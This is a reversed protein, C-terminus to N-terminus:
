GAVGQLELERKVQRTLEVVESRQATRQLAQLMRLCERIEGIVDWVHASHIPSHPATRLQLGLEDAMTQANFLVAAVSRALTDAHDVEALILDLGKLQLETLSPTKGAASM